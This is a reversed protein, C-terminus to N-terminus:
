RMGKKPLLAYLQIAGLSIIQVAFCCVIYLLPPTANGTDVLSLIQMFPNVPALFPLYYGSLLWLILITVSVMAGFFNDSWQTLFCLTLTLAGSAIAIGLMSLCVSPPMGWLLTILLLMPLLLLGHIFSIVLFGLHKGGFWPVLGTKKIRTTKLFKSENWKQTGDQWGLWVFYITLALFIYIFHMRSILLTGGSLAALVIFCRLAYKHKWERYEAIMCAIM